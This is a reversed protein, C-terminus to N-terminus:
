RPPDLAWVLADELRDDGWFVEGDGTVFSPSGFLGLQRADDTRAQWAACVARSEARAIVADPDQDLGALLRKLGDAEGPMGGGLFWDRYVAQVFRPCWGQGEAVFAVRNALGQPDVPYAPVGKFPLGHRRARRELDRWMYRLKVPKGAFPVNNQEHMIARVNFPMWRLAVGARAAAEDARLVSLYSYTSGIFFWFDLTPREM